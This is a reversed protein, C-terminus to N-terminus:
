AEDDKPSACSEVLFEHWSKTTKCSGVDDQIGLGGLARLLLGWHDMANSPLQVYPLADDKYADVWSGCKAGWLQTAELYVAHRDIRAVEREVESMSLLDVLGRNPSTEALRMRVLRTISAEFVDYSLGGIVLGRKLPSPIDVGLLGEVVDHLIAGVKVAACMIEGGPLLCAIEYCLRTHNLVSYRGPTRGGYRHLRSMVEFAGLLDIKEPASPTFLTGDFDSYKFNM